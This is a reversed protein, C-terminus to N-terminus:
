GFIHIYRFNNKPDSQAMSFMQDALRFGYCVAIEASDVLVWKGNMGHPTKQFTQCRKPSLWYLVLGWM